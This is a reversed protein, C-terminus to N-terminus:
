HSGVELSLGGRALAWLRDRTFAGKRTRYTLMVRESHAHRYLRARALSSACSMQIQDHIM